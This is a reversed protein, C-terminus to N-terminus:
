RNKLSRLLRNRPTSRPRIAAQAVAANIVNGLLTIYTAQATYRQYDVQAALDEVTRRQGGFVDLAYSANVQPTYLTFTMAPPASVSSSPRFNRVIIALSFNAQPFFVGYGAPLLESAEASAPRPRPSTVTRPWPKKLSRMSGPPTFVQWWDAAIADGYDFEQSQGAAAITWQAGPGPHVQTM